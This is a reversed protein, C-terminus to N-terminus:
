QLIAKPSPSPEAGSDGARPLLMFSAIAALEVWTLLALTHKLGLSGESLWGVLTPALFGALYVSVNIMVMVAAVLSPTVGPLAMVYTFLVPLWGAIGLGAVVLGITTLYGDAFFIGISGIIVLASTIWLSHKEPVIRRPLLGFIVVGITGCLPLVSALRAAETAPIGKSTQLFLPVFYFYMQYVWSVAFIGVTLQWAVRMRLAVVLSKDQRKTDLVAPARSSKDRGFGCWTAAAALTMLGYLSLAISWRGGLLTTIEGTVVFGAATGIFACAAFITNVVPKQRETFWEMIMAMVVPATIAFGLGQVLRAVFLSGFTHTAVVMSGGAGLVTLGILFGKRLGFRDVVVSGLPVCLMVAVSTASMLLGFDAVTIGVSEMIAGAVAAPSFLIAQSTLQITIAIALVFWRFGAPTERDSFQQTM